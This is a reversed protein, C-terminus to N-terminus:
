HPFTNIHAQINDHERDCIVASDWPEKNFLLRAKWKDQKERQKPMMQVCVHTAM